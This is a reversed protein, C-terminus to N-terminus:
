SSFWIDLHLLNLFSIHLHKSLYHAKPTYSSSLLNGSYGGVFKILSGSNLSQSWLLEKQIPTLQHCKLASWVMYILKLRLVHCSSSPSSVRKMKLVKCKKYQAFLSVQQVVGTVESGQSCNYYHLSLFIFCSLHCSHLSVQYFLQLAANYVSSPALLRCFWM